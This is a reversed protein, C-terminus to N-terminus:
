GNGGSDRGQNVRTRATPNQPVEKQSNDGEETQGAEALNHKLLADYKFAEIGPIKYNQAYKSANVERSLMGSLDRGASSIASAVIREKAARLSTETNTHKNKRAKVAELQDDTINADAIIKEADRLPVYFNEMLDTAPIDHIKKNGNHKKYEELKAIFDAYVEKPGNKYPNKSDFEKLSERWSEKNFEFDNIVDEITKGRTMADFLEKAAKCSGILKPANRERVSNEIEKFIGDKEIGNKDKYKGEYTDEFEDLRASRTIYNRRVATSKDLVPDKAAMRDVEAVLALKYKAKEAISKPSEGVAEFMKKLHQDHILLGTVMVCKKASAIRFEDKDLDTCRSVDVPACGAAGFMALVEGYYVPDMKENNPTSFSLQLGKRSTGDKDIFTKEKIKFRIAPKNKKRKKGSVDYMDGKYVEFVLERPFWNVCRTAHPNWGNFNRGQKKGILESMKKYLDGMNIKPDPSQSDATTSQSADLTRVENPNEEVATPQPQPLNEPKGAWLNNFFNNFWQEDNNTIAQEIQKGTEEFVEKAEKDFDNPFSFGSIGNLELCARLYKMKEPTLNESDSFEIRDGRITFSFSPSFENMRVALSLGKNDEGITINTKESFQPSGATFEKISNLQLFLDKDKEYLRKQTDDLGSETTKLAEGEPAEFDWSYGIEKTM